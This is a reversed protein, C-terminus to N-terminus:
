LKETKYYNVMLDVFKSYSNIGDKQQNIKLFSDYFAHFGKDIFSDYQNWFDDTEKYNALIGPNIIRILNLYVAEDRLKL